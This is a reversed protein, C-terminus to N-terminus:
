TKDNSKKVLGTHYPKRKKMLTYNKQTDDM